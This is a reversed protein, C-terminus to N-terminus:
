FWKWLTIYDNLVRPPFTEYKIELIHNASFEYGQDNKKESQKHLKVLVSLPLLAPRCNFHPIRRCASESM